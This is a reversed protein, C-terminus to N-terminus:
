IKFIYIKNKINKNKNKRFQTLNNISRVYQVLFLIVDRKVTGYAYSTTSCM